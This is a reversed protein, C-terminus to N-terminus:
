LSQMKIIHPFCFNLAPINAMKLLYVIIVKQYYFTVYQHSLKDEVKVTDFLASEPLFSACSVM